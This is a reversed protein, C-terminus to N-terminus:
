LSVIVFFLNNYVSGDISGISYSSVIDSNASETAGGEAYVGDGRAGDGSSEVGRPEGTADDPDGVGDGTASGGAEECGVGAGGRAECVGAHCEWGGGRGGGRVGDLCDRSGHLTWDRPDGAARPRLGPAGRGVEGGRAAGGRAAGPRTPLVRARVM